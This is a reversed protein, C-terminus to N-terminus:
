LPSGCFKCFGADDDHGERGCNSCARASEKVWKAKTMESTVIGTPVAIIGYGMIMVFSALLQGLTTQPSIDGYGVTTMTVISWYIGTPISTFGHDAGEIIYMLAGVIVNTSLVVVLFVTIKPMSRKLAMYLLDAAGLFQMLKLVRFVRVLRLMRIVLFAQTGVFILSLYTPIISLFDVMGYFSFIYNKPHNISIIRAVYEITFAITFAWELLRLMEGYKTEIHAVSELIVVVVSLVIFVILLLDFLKGGFTDANFIIEYLRTRFASKSKERFNARHM